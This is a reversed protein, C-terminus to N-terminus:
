SDKLSDITYYFVVGHLRADIAMTDAADAPNRSVQIVIEDGAVPTGAITIASTEPGEYNDNTTGGTDTSTQATGFAADGADDNSFARGSFGWVVGFNTTTAAHSWIPVCTVTGENWSPPMRIRFQVFEQTSADFDWSEVMIKNTALEILGSAAGNTTRKLMTKKPVWLAKKGIDAAITPNGSVGNGNTVAIGAGATITRAAATGSGTRTLLGNSSIGALATLDADKAEFAAAAASMSYFDTGAELDLLARMAAYDASTVLSQGNATLGLTTLAAGANADDVLTRGFTSLVSPDITWTAGSASVVVDGKDGDTVAPGDEGKSAVLDWKVAALDTAFTGSTHAVLCIYSSGDHQVTDDVVYATATVWAGKWDGILSALSASLSDRTVIGNKLKGDSRRVDLIADRLEETSQEINALEVDLRDAPLPTSPNNDQFGSFDYGRTYKRPNAM